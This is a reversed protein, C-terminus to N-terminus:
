CGAMPEAKQAAKREASHVVLQAVSPEVLYAAKKVATQEVTLDAKLDAKTMASLAVLKVVM